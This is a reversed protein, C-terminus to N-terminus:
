LPPSAEGVLVKSFLSISTTPYLYPRTRGNETRSGVKLSRGMLIHVKRGRKQIWLEKKRGIFLGGEIGLNETM